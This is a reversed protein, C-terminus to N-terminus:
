QFTERPFDHTLGNWPLPRAWLVLKMDLTGYYHPFLQGGRSAEWKLANGLADQAIAFIVLGERGSFHLKATEQVQGISSFHIFGDRLDIEAGQFRGEVSAQEFLKSDIIKFINPVVVV